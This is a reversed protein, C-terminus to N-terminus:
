RRGGKKVSGSEAALKATLEVIVQRLAEVECRLFDVEAVATIANAAGELDTQAKAGAALTAALISRNQFDIIHRVKVRDDLAHWQGATLDLLGAITNAMRPTLSGLVNEVDSANLVYPTGRSLRNAM